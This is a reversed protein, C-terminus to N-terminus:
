SNNLQYNAEIIKKINEPWWDGAIHSFTAILVSAVYRNPEFEFSLRRQPHILDRYEGIISLLLVSEKTIPCINDVIMERLIKIKEGLNMSPDYESQNMKSGKDIRAQIQNNAKFIKWIEQDNRQFLEDLIAECMSGITFIQSIYTTQVGNLISESVERYMDKTIERVRDNTIFTFFNELIIKTKGTSFNNHAELLITAFRSKEADNLLLYLANLNEDLEWSHSKNKYRHLLPKVVSLLGISATIRKEGNLKLKDEKSSFDLNEIADSINGNVLDIVGLNWYILGKHCHKFKKETELFLELLAKWDEYQHNLDEGQILQEFIVPWKDDDKLNIGLENVIRKFKSIKETQNTM